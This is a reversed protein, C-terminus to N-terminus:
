IIRVILYDSSMLDSEAVGLSGNDTITLTITYNGLQYYTWEATPDDSTVVDDGYHPDNVDTYVGFNWRYESIEGDDFSDSADVRVTAGILPLATKVQDDGAECFPHANVDIEMEKTVSWYKSDSNIHNNIFSAKFSYAGRRTANYVYQVQARNSIDIDSETISVGPGSIEITMKKGEQAEVSTNASSNTGTYRILTFFTTITTEGKFKANNDMDNKGILINIDEVVSKVLHVTTGKTGGVNVEITYEGNETIFENFPLFYNGTGADMTETKKMTIEGNIKTKITIDGNYNTMGGGTTTVLLEVKNDIEQMVRVSVTDPPPSYFYAGVIAFLLILAIIGGVLRNRKKKAREKRKKARQKAKTTKKKKKPEEEEEEEDDEEEEDEEEEDDEDEEEEEVDEEEVEYDDDVAEVEVIEEEVKKKSKGKSSVKAM